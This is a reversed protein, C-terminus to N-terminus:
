DNVCSGTDWRFYRAHAKKHLYVGLLIGVMTMVAPIKGAGLQVFVMSPCAGCVAWGFGFLMSGPITGPQFFKEQKPIRRALLIFALMSLAVAGAFAYLMRLDDLVFMQHLEDYDGFGIRGVVYGMLGGILGYSLYMKLRSQKM